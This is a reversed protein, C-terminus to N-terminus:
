AVSRRAISQLKVIPFANNEIISALKSKIKAKFKKLMRKLGKYDFYKDNWEPIIHLLLQKGFKM